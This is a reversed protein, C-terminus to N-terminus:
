YNHILALVIFISVMEDPLYDWHSKALGGIGGQKKPQRYSWRGGDKFREIRDFVRLLKLEM